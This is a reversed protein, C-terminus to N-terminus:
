RGIKNGLVRATYDVMPIIRAYNLRTPGIVGVAGIIQERSDTYPAVIVSCGAMNFLNSESGIFIRVGEADKTLDLLSGLGAKTELADFLERVRELDEVADTAAVREGAAEDVAEERVAVRGRGDAVAAHVAGERHRRRAVRGHRREGLDLLQQGAAAGADIASAAGRALNAPEGPSLSLDRRM